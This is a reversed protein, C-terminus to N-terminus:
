KKMRTYIGFESVCLVCCIFFTNNTKAIPAKAAQPEPEPSVVVVSEEDEIDESEDVTAGAIGSEEEEIIPSEDLIPSVDEIFIFPSEVLIYNWFSNVVYTM